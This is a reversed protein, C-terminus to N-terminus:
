PAGKDLSATHAEFRAAAQKLIVGNERLYTRTNEISVHGLYTSLAPLLTEVDRDEAYWAAVRHVAFAHRLDHPSPPRPAVIEAALFADSLCKAAAPHSLRRRRCSVFIPASAAIGMPRKPHRLYRDMAAITSSRLPLIRTKGFKGRRVTLLRDCFDLDGVDLALAEGIRMGTSYLLGLLTASTAPRLSDAPPLQWAAVLLERVDDTSLIYPQRFRLWRPAAPPRPPLPDVPAGHRIAYALAQWVVTIINDRSRQHAEREGQGGSGV